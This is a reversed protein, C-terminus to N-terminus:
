SLLYRDTKAALQVMNIMTVFEVGAVMELSRKCRLVLSQLSNIVFAGNEESWPRGEVLAKMSQIWAQSSANSINSLEGQSINSVMEVAENDVIGTPEDVVGWGRQGKSSNRAKKAKRGGRGCERTQNHNAVVGNGDGVGSHSGYFGGNNSRQIRQSRRTYARELQNECLTGSNSNPNVPQAQIRANSTSAYNSTNQSQPLNQCTM